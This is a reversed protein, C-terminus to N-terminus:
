GASSVITPRSTTPKKALRITLGTSARKWSGRGSPMRDASGAISAQYSVPCVDTFGYRFSATPQDITPDRQGVPDVFASGRPRATQSLRSYPKGPVRRSPSTTGMLKVRGSGNVVRGVRCPVNPMARGRMPEGRGSGLSHQFTAAVSEVCGRRSREDQVDDLRVEIPRAPVHGSHEAGRLVRAGTMRIPWPGAGAPAVTCCKRASPSSSTGPEPASAAATGPATSAQSRSKRSWPVHSSASTSSKAIPYARSPCGTNPPDPRGDGRNGPQEPLVPGRGSFQPHGAAPDRLLAVQDPIRGM